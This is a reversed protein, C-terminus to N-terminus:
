SGSWLRQVWAGTCCTGGTNRDASSTRWINCDSQGNFSGSFVKELGSTVWADNGENFRDKETHALYINFKRTTMSSNFYQLYITDITREAGIEDALYIQQTYSHPHAAYIPVTNTNSGTTMDTGIIVEPAYNGPCNTSFSLTPSYDSSTEGDCFTRLRVRYTSQPELRSLMYYDTHLNDVVTWEDADEAMYSLEYHDPANENSNRWTLMASSGTVEEAVLAFPAVCYEEGHFEYCGIDVTDGYVRSAGALDYASMGSIEMGANILASGDRLRYDNNEPTVFFPYNKGEETGFNNTSLNIVNVNGELGEVACNQVFVNDENINSPNGNRTNGWVVSNIMRNYSSNSSYYVGAVYSSGNNDTQNNVITSNLIQSWYSVDVGGGQYTATNHAILCNYIGESTSTSTYNYLYVGGGYGATNYTVVCHDMKSNTNM